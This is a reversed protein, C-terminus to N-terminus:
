RPGLTRDLYYRMTARADPASIQGCVIEIGLSNALSWILHAERDPDLGPAARDEAQATRLVDAALMRLEADDGFLLEAIQADELARGLYATSVRIALQTDPDDSLVEDLAARLVDEPDVPAPLRRLREGIRTEMRRMALRLGYLLMSEKTRFYHQVRGMSVAAQAAVERLSVSELGAHGALRWVAEAIEAKQQEVDVKRPM